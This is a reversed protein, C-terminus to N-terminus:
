KICSHILTLSAVVLYAQVLLRLSHAEVKSGKGIKDIVLNPVHVFAAWLGTLVLPTVIGAIVTILEPRGVAM